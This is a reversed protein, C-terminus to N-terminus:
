RDKYSPQNAIIEGTIFDYRWGGDSDTGTSVMPLVGTHVAEVANSSTMPNLPLDGGRLYPGYKVLASAGVDRGSCAVGAASTYQTLHAVFAAAGPTATDTNVGVTCSGVSSVAGPYHGHEVTYLDIATRLSVLNADLAALKTGDAAQGFQPVVISALSSLIVVVILLEILTFGRPACSSGGGVGGRAAVCVGKSGFVCRWVSAAM